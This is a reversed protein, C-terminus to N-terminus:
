LAQLKTSQPRDEVLNQCGSREVDEGDSRTNGQHEHHTADVLRLLGLPHSLSRDTLRARLAVNHDDPRYRSPSNVQSPDQCAMSSAQWSGCLIICVERVCGTCVPEGHSFRDSPDAPM